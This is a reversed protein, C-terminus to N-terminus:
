SPRIALADLQTGCTAANDGLPTEMILKIPTSVLLRDSANTYGEKGGGQELPSPLELPIIIYLMVGSIHTLPNSRYALCKHIFFKPVQAPIDWSLDWLKEYM